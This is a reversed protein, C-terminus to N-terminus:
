RSGTSGRFKLLRPPAALSLRRVSQCGVPSSMRIKFRETLPELKRTGFLSPCSHPTLLLPLLQHAVLLGYAPLSSEGLVRDTVNSEKMAKTFRLQYSASQVRRQKGRLVATVRPKPQQSRHSVGNATM